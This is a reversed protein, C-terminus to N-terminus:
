KLITINLYVFSALKENERLSDLLLLITSIKFIM